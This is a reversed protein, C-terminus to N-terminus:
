ALMPPYSDSPNEVHLLLLLGLIAPHWNSDGSADSSRSWSGDDNQIEVVRRVFADNVLNGQGALYLFAAAELEVENVVQDSNVLEANARYVDEIFGESLV